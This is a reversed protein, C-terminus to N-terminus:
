RQDDLRQAPTPEPEPRSRAKMLATFLEVVKLQEAMTVTGQFQMGAVAVTALEQRSEKAAARLEKDYSVSM